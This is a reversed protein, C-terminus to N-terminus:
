LERYGLVDEILGALQGFGFELFHLKMGAHSGVNKRRNVKWIRDDRDHPMVVLVPIARTIRRADLASLNWNSGSDERDDVTEVRECRVPRIPWFQRVGFRERN